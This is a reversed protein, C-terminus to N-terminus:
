DDVDDGESALMFSKIPLVVIVVLVITFQIILHSLFDRLSQAINYVLLWDATNAVILALFSYEGLRTYEKVLDEQWQAIRRREIWPDIKERFM